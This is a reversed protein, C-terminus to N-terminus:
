VNNQNLKLAEECERLVSGYNKWELNAAARNALCIKRISDDLPLDPVSLAKTYFIAADRHPKLKYANNGQQKFTSAIESSTGEYALSTFASLQGPDLEDLSNGFLPMRFMSALFDATSQSKIDAIAPPLAPTTTNWASISTSPPPTTQIEEIQPM